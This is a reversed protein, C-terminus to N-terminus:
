KNESLIDYMRMITAVAQEKTFNGKPLFNDGDVGDMIHLRKLKYISDKAWESIDSDDSYEFSLNSYSSINLYDAIRAIIAAAEERTINDYPAFINNEKGEIIGIEALANIETKDIDIFKSKPQTINAYRNIFQYTIICFDERNIETNYNTQMQSPIVNSKIGKYIDNISWNSYTHEQFTTIEASIIDGISVVETIAVRFEGCLNTESDKLGYIYKYQSNGEAYQHDVICDDDKYISIFVNEPSKINIEITLTSGIDTVANFRHNLTGNTTIQVNEIKTDENIAFININFCLVMAIVFFLGAKVKGM